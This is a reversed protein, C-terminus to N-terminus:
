NSDVHGAQCILRSVLLGAGWGQGREKSQEARSSSSSSRRGVRDAETSCGAGMCQVSCVACRAETCMGVAGFDWVGYYTVKEDSNENEGASLVIQRV